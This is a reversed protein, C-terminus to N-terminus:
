LMRLIFRSLITEFYLNDKLKNLSAENVDNPINYSYKLDKLIYDIEPDKLIRTSM